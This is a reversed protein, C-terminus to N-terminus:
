DATASLGRLLGEHVAVVNAELINRQLVHGDQLLKLLYLRLVLIRQSFRKLLVEAFSTEYPNERRLIRVYVVLEECRWSLQLRIRASLVEGHRLARVLLRLAVRTSIAVRGSERVLDQVLQEERVLNCRVRHLAELLSHALM